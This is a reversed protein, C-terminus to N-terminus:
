AFYKQRIEETLKREEENLVVWECAFLSDFKEEGIAKVVQRLTTETMVYKQGDKKSTLVFAGPEEGKVPIM